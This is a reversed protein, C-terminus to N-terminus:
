EDNFSTDDFDRTIMIGIMLNEIEVSYKSSIM